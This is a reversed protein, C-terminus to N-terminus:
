KCERGMVSAVANCRESITKEVSCVTQLCENRVAYVRISDAECQVNDSVTWEVNCVM